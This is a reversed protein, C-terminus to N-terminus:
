HLPMSPAFVEQSLQHSVVLGCAPQPNMQSHRPLQQPTGLISGHLFMAADSEEKGVVLLKAKDILAGKALDPPHRRFLGWLLDDGSEGTQARFRKRRLKRHRVKPSPQAIALTGNFVGEEVLGEDGSDAVDVGVFGEEEAFDIGLGVAGAELGLLDLEEVGGDDLHELVTNAFAAGGEAVEAVDFADIAVVAIDGPDVVPFALGTLGATGRDCPHFQRPSRRM